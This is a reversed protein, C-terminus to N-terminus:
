NNVGLQEFEGDWECAGQGEEHQCEHWAINGPINEAIMLDKLENFYVLAGGQQVARVEFTFVDAGESFIDRRVSGNKITVSKMNKQSELLLALQNETTIHLRGHVYYDM